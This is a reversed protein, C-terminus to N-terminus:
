PGDLDVIWVAGHGTEMAEEGVNSGRVADVRVQPHGIPSHSGPHGGAPLDVDAAAETLHSGGAASTNGEIDRAAREWRGERFDQAGQGRHDGVSCAAPIDAALEGRHPAKGPRVDRM